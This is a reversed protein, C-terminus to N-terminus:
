GNRMLGSTTTTMAWSTLKLLGIPGHIETLINTFEM